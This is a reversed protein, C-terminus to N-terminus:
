DITRKVFEPVVSGALATINNFMWFPTVISGKQVDMYGGHMGKAFEAECKVTFPLIQLFSVAGELQSFKTKITISRLDVKHAIDQTKIWDCYCESPV